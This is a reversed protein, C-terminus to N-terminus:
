NSIGTLTHLTMFRLICTEFFDDLFQRTPRTALSLLLLERCICGIENKEEWPDASSDTERMPQVKVLDTRCDFQFIIHIQSPLLTIEFVPEFPFDGWLLLSYDFHM